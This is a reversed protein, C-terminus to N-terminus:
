MDPAELDEPFFLDAREGIQLAPGYTGDWICEGRLPREQGDHGTQDTEIGGLVEV